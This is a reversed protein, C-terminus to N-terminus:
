SSAKTAGVEATPIASAKAKERLIRETVDRAIGVAGAAVGDLLVLHLRRRQLEAAVLDRDVRENRAQDVRRERAVLFPIRLRDLDGASRWRAHEGSVLLSGALTERPM